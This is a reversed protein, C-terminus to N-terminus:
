TADSPRAENVASHNSRRPCGHDLTVPQGISGRDAARGLSLPASTSLTQAKENGTLATGAATPTARPGRGASHVERGDADLERM